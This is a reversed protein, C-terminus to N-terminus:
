KSIAGYLNQFVESTHDLKFQLKKRREEDLYARTYYLQDDGNDEIIDLTLIEYLEPAYAIFAGSNLYKKGKLPQPYKNALSSDPWCASEASFLVRAETSKFKDVISQLNSLFIVDYADTFFIIKNPDDKFPELENILLNM